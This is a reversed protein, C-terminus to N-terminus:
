ARKSMRQNPEVILDMNAARVNKITNSVMQMGHDAVAIASSLPCQRWRITTSLLAVEPGSIVMGVPVTIAIGSCQWWWGAGAALDAQSQAIFHEHSWWQAEPPSTDSPLEPRLRGEGSRAGLM